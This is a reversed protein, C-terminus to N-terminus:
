REVIGVVLFAERPEEGFDGGAELELEELAHAALVVRGGISVGLAPRTETIVHIPSSGRPWTKRDAEIWSDGTWIAIPTVVARDSM